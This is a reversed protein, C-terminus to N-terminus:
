QKLPDVLNEPKYVEALAGHRKAGDPMLWVTGTRRSSLFDRAMAVIEQPLAVYGVKESFEGCRNVYFEVFKRVEPRRLANMSVYIFLPRSLPAYRNSLVNEPEPLVADGSAPNVIPVAKVKERNEYYYAAGFYGLSFKDGNIGTVLVNDDESTSLDTRFNREGMVAERFYDFTGSDTGPSYLKITENPWAPNIDSWKRIKGDESFLERLQEVTLTDTWNNDHNVVVSLGDFGVPLEIFRVQNQQAAELEEKKIPRSADSIDIEGKVFRKFGGGTGSVGVVVDVNPFDQKFAHAAAETIPFVTSSGDVVVKGRLNAAQARADPVMALLLLVCLVAVETLRFIRQLM